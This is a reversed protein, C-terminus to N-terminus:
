MIGFSYSNVDHGCAQEKSLTIMATTWYVLFGLDLVTGILGTSQNVFNCFGERFTGDITALAVSAM